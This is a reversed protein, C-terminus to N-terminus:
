IIIIINDIKYDKVSIGYIIIATNIEYKLKISKSIDIHYNILNINGNRAKLFILIM